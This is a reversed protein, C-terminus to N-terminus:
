DEEEKAVVLTWGLQELAASAPDEDDPVEFEIFDNGDFENILKYKTKNNEMFECM